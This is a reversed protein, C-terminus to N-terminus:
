NCLDITKQTVTDLFINNRMIRLDTAIESIHKIDYKYKSYDLTDIDLTYIYENNQIYEANHNIVAKKNSGPEYSQLKFGFQSLPYDNNSETSSSIVTKFYDNPNNFESFSFKNIFRISTRLIESAELINQLPNLALIASNFFIDWTKYREQEIYTITDESLEIRNNGNHFVLSKLETNSITNSKGEVINSQDLNIGINYNKLKNPFKKIIDSECKSYDEMKFNPIKFKLQFISVIIPSNNIM